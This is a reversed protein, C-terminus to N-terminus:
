ILENLASMILFKFFNYLMFVIIFDEISFFKFYNFFEVIQELKFYIISNLFIIKFYKM